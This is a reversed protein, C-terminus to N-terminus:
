RTSTPPRRRGGSRTRDGPQHRHAARLRNRRGRTKPTCVFIKRRSPSDKAPTANFPGEIRITGVHPFFTYGADTGDAADLAHLAPRPRAGARLQNRPVHRRGHAHGATTKFRVRMPAGGRGGFSRRPPGGPRRADAAAAAGRGRGGCNAPRSRGGGEWDILECGSATSAADRAERVAGLRLRDAVHQRRLDADGDAHVRRRVPVHAHVLMGGRTGFPLGEIHYDQSTDERRATSSWRRSKPIASRWGASRRRRRCMRRSWRRRSASRAPSTTSAAVDLRGVASVEGPRHRPGAPRPRRERIRHSEASAPGPPPM